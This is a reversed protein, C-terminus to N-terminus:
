HCVFNVDLTVPLVSKIFPPREQLVLFTMYKIVRPLHLSSYYTRCYIKFRTKPYLLTIYFCFLFTTTGRFMKNFLAATRSRRKSINFNLDNFFHKPISFSVPLTLYECNSIPHVTDIVKVAFDM